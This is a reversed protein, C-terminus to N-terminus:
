IKQTDKQIFTHVRHINTHLYTPIYANIYTPLYQHILIHILYTNSNTYLYTPLYTPILSDIYTPLYTNIYRYLYRPLYCLVYTCLYTIIYTYPYNAAELPILAFFELEYKSKSFARCHLQPWKKFCHLKIKFRNPHSTMVFGFTMKAEHVKATVFSTLLLLTDKAIFADNPKAVLFL